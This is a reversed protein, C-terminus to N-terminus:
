FNIREENKEKKQPAFYPIFLGMFLGGLGGGAKYSIDRISGSSYREEITNLENLAYFRKEPCHSLESLIRSEYRSKEYVHDKLIDGGIVGCITALGLWGALILKTLNCRM